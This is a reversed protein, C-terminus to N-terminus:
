IRQNSLTADERHKASEKRLDIVESRLKSLERDNESFLNKYKEKDREVLDVNTKVKMYEQSLREHENV